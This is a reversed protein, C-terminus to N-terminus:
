RTEATLSEWVGSAQNYWISYAIYSKFYAVSYAAKRNQTLVIVMILHLIKLTKSLRDHETLAKLDEPWFFTKNLGLCQQHFLVAPYM